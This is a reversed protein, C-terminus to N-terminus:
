KFACRLHSMRCMRMPMLMSMMMTAQQKMDREGRRLAGGSITNCLPYCVKGGMTLGKGAPTNNERQIQLHCIQLIKRLAQM